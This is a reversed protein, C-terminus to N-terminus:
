RLRRRVLIGAACALAGLVAVAGGLFVPDVELESTLGVVVGGAVPVALAWWRGIALGAIFGAALAVITLM